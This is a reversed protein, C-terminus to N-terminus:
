IIETFNLPNRRQGGREIELEASTKPHLYYDGVYKFGHFDDDVLNFYKAARYRAFDPEGGQCMPGQGFCNLLFIVFTAIMLVTIVFALEMVTRKPEVYGKKPDYGEPMPINENGTRAVKSSAVYEPTLATNTVLHCSYSIERCVPCSGKVAPEVKVCPLAVSLIKKYLSTRVPLPNHQKRSMWEVICGKHFVHKNSCVIVPLDRDEYPRGEKGKVPGEDGISYDEWESRPLYVLSGLCISCQTTQLDM